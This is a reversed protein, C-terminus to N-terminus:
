RDNETKEEDITLDKCNELIVKSLVLTDELLEQDFNFMRFELCRASESLNIQIDESLERCKEIYEDSLRRM